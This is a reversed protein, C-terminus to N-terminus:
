DDGNCPSHLPYADAHWEHKGNCDMGDNEAKTMRKKHKRNHFGCGHRALTKLNM